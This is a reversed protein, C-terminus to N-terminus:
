ADGGTVPFLGGDDPQAALRQPVRQSTTRSHQERAEDAGLRRFFELECEDRSRGAIIDIMKLGRRALSWRRLENGELAIFLNMAVSLLVMVWPSLDLSIGIASIITLVAFFIAAIVWMRRFLLWILPIFLAIWCFAEPVFVVQEPRAFISAADGSRHHVTYTKM